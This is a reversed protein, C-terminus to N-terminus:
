VYGWAALRTEVDDSIEGPRTAMLGGGELRASSSLENLSASDSWVDREEGPDRDIRYARNTGSKMDVVVKTDGSYSAVYVRDFTELGQPRFRSRFHGWVIGDSIAIAPTVRDRDVLETLRYTTSQSPAPAAGLALSETAVDVLSAWGRATSGRSEAFPLRLWLPIRILQEDVRFFHFLTGHEGFAQGHDATLIFATNDWRGAQKLTGILSSVRSDMGLIMERYLEHLLQFDEKTARWDGNMWAVPDQRTRRYKRWESFGPGPFYPEHADLLNVFAFIPEDAPTRRVWADFTPELWQAIRRTGDGTQSKLSHVIRNGVVMVYPHQIIAPRVKKIIRDIPGKRVSAIRSTPAKKSKPLVNAPDNSRTRLFPEWWGSWAVQDFGDVMGFSPEILPNASLSMTRYGRARLRTSVRPREPALQLTGKWHCGTEAPSLGTFLSAHSPITWAAPSIARPFSISERRLEECATM